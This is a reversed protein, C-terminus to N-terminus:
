WASVVVVSSIKLVNFISVATFIVKLKSEIAAILLNFHRVLLVVNLTKGRAVKFFVLVPSAFHICNAYRSVMVFIRELLLFDHAITLSEIVLLLM